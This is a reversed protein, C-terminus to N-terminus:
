RLRIFPIPACVPCVYMCVNMKIYITSESISVSGFLMEALLIRSAAVAVVAAADYSLELGV